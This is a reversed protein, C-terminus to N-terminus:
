PAIQVDVERAFCAEARTETVLPSAAIETFDRAWYVMKEDTERFEKIPKPHINVRKLTQMLNGDEKESMVIGIIGDEMLCEIDPGSDGIYVPMPAPLAMREHKRSYELFKRMATLKHESTVILPEQEGNLDISGTLRGNSHAINALACMKRLGLATLVGGIFYKSFNVSVVGWYLCQPSNDDTMGKVFEHIGKRGKVIGGQVAKQGWEMWQDKEIGRFIASKSIREFSKEEIRQLDRYYDIEEQLTEREEKAPVYKKEHRNLDAAYAKVIIEWAKQREDRESEDRSIAFRTLTSITDKTTITGDFDLIWPRRPDPM